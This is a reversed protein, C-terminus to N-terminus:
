REDRADCTVSWKCDTRECIRGYFAELGDSETAPLVHLRVTGDRASVRFTDRTDRDRVLWLPMPMDIFDGFQYPGDDLLSEVLGRLEPESREADPDLVFTTDGEYELGGARPYRRSPRVPIEFREGSTM